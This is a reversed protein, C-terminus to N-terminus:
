SKKEKLYESVETGANRGSWITFSMESGFFCYAGACWGSCMVGAAYLGPIIGGDLKMVHQHNDIKLGGLCTDIGSRGLLV